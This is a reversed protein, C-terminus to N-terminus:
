YLEQEHFHFDRWAAIVEPPLHKANLYDTFSVFWYETKTKIMYGKLPVVTYTSQKLVNRRALVEEFLPDVMLPDKM